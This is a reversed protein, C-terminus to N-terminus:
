VEAGRKARAKKRRREFVYERQIHFSILFLVGDVLLKALATPFGPIATVLLVGGYSAAAQVACLLYYRVLSQGVPARGGFVCARNLLFNVASSVLRAGLTAALLRVAAEQASLLQDLLLFLLFDCVASAIGSWAFRLLLRYISLSDRLPHFHSTANHEIYITRIPVEAIPIERRRTELLMNTEFEFREGPLDLLDRAFRWPIARLGTQTDSVTVGCLLRFSRVSIRNGWASRAPVDPGSFSRCGLILSDPRQELLAACAAVDEACHQNDGDVTVVGLDDGRHNLFYNFATKLARGKGLNKNHRLVVCGPHAAAVREFYGRTEERSGDDVLIIREFGAGTLGDVVQLLKEDPNLSPVIATVKM